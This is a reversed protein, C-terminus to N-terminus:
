LKTQKECGLMSGKEWIEHESQKLGGKPWNVIFTKSVTIWKAMDSEKCCWPSYGAQSRQGYFEGPLFVPISLWERRWPIKGVWPNFGLRGCLLCIKKDESGSPFGWHRQWWSFNQINNYSNNKASYCCVRIVEYLKQSDPLWSDDQSDSESEPDKGLSPSWPM